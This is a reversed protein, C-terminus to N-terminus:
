KVMINSIIFFSFLVFVLLELVKLLHNNLLGINMKKHHHWEMAYNRIKFFFEVLNLVNKFYPKLSTFFAGDYINSKNRFLSRHVYSQLTKGSSFYLRLLM